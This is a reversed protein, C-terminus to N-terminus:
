PSLFNVSRRLLNFEISNSQILTIYRYGSSDKNDVTSVILEREFISRDIFGGDLFNESPEGTAVAAEPFNAKEFAMVVNASDILLRAYDYALPYDRSAGLAWEFFDSTIIFDVERPSPPKKLSFIKSSISGFPESLMLFKKEFDFNEGAGRTYFESLHSKMQARYNDLHRLAAFLNKLPEDPIYKVILNELFAAVVTQTKDDSFLRGAGDGEKIISYYLTGSILRYFEGEDRIEALHRIASASLLRMELASIVGSALTYDLGSYSM